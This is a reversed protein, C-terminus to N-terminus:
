FHVDRSKLFAVDLSEIHGIAELEHLNKTPDLSDSVFVGVVEYKSTLEQMIHYSTFLYKHSFAFATGVDAGLVNVYLELEFLLFNFCVCHRIKGM